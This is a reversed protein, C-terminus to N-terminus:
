PGAAPPAPWAGLGRPCHSGNRPFRRRRLIATRLAMPTQWKLFGLLPEIPGEIIPSKHHCADPVPRDRQDYNRNPGARGQTLVIGGTDGWCRDVRGFECRRIEGGNPAGVIAAGARRIRGVVPLVILRGLGLAIQAISVLKLKVLKTNEHVFGGPQGVFGGEAFVEDVEGLGAVLVADAQHDGDAIGGTEHVLIAGDVLVADASEHRFEDGGDALFGCQGEPIGGVFGVVVGGASSRILLGFAQFNGAEDGGLEVFEVFGFGGDGDAHGRLALHFGEGVRDIDEGEVVVEGGAGRDGVVDGMGIGEGGADVFLNHIGLHAADGAGIGVVDSEFFVHLGLNAPVDPFEHDGLFPAVNM